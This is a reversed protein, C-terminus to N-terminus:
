NNEILIFVRENIDGDNRRFKFSSINRLYQRRSNTKVLLPEQVIPEEDSVPLEQSGSSSQPEEASSSDGDSHKGISPSNGTKDDVVPLTNINDGLRNNDAAIILPQPEALPLSETVAEPTALTPEPGSPM